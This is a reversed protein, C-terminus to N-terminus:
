IGTLIQFPYEFSVTGTGFLILFNVRQSKKSVYGSNRKFYRIPCLIILKCQNGHGIIGSM